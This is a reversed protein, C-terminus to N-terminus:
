AVPPASLPLAISPKMNEPDFSLEVNVVRLVCHCVPVPVVTNPVPVANVDAVKLKVLM